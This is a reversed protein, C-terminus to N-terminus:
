AEIALMGAAMDENRGTLPAFTMGREVSSRLRAKSSTWSSSVATMTDSLSSSTREDGEMGEQVILDVHQFNTACRQKYVRTKEPVQL